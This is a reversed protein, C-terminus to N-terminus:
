AVPATTRTAPPTYAAPQAPEAPAAIAVAPDRRHRRASIRRVVTRALLVPIAGLAGFVVVPIVMIAVALIVLAVMPLLGPIAGLFSMSALGLGATADAVSELLETTTHAPRTTPHPQTATAM